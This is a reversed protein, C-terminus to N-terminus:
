RSHIKSLAISAAKGPLSYAPDLSPWENQMEELKQIEPTPDEHSSVMLGIKALHKAAAKYTLMLRYDSIQQAFESVSTLDAPTKSTKEALVDVIAKLEMTATWIKEPSKM